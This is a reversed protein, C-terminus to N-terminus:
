GGAAQVEAPLKIRFTTGGAHSDVLSLSGGHQEILERAIALGLGTGGPRAAGAFPQFLHARAKPPLGPGNDALTLTVGGEAATAAVTLRTAGAQVANQALNSLARFLQARDATVQLGAPLEVVWTVAGTLAAPLGAGVEAVLDALPFRGLSLPATGERAYDLTGDCLAVARDIAALLPPVLRRVEPDRSDAMRDSVLRATSLINRLDHSIKSVATGLAALREKQHLAERLGQQMQALAQGAVGIEDSRAGSPVFLPAAEPDARFAVLSETVRRMPRVMLRHLALYVLAATVLSIVLSLGLIRLAFAELAESLPAEDLVLTVTAAPDLPAPGSVEIVRGPARVLAALADGVLMMPGAAVLDFRADVPGPPEMMLMLRRGDPLRVGVAYAGVHSLLLDELERSVMGDPTAELALVALHGTALRAELWDHRFRGVSPAFILVEALMVFGITLLLLRASLGRWPPPLRLM